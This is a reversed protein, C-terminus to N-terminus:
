LEFEFIKALLFRKHADVLNRQVNGFHERNWRSLKVGCRKVMHAVGEVLERNRGESWVQEIIDTCGEEGVWM